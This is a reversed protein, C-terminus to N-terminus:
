DTVELSSIFERVIEVKGEIDLHPWAARAAKVVSGIAKVDRGHPTVSQAIATLTSDPGDWFEITERIKRVTIPRFIRRKPPPANEQAFYDAAFLEIEMVQAAHAENM